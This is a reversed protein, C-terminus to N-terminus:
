ERDTGVPRRAGLVPLQSGRAIDSAQRGAREEVAARRREARALEIMKSDALDRARAADSLTSEHVRQLSGSFTRWQRLAWGDSAGGHGAYDGALQATRDALAQLKSLTSEAQAAELAAGQKAIARIRELRNLRVLRAREAKM